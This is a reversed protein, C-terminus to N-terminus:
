YRLVFITIQNFKKYKIIEHGKIKEVPKDQSSNDFATIHFFIEGPNLKRDSGSRLKATEIGRKQTLYNLAKAFRALVLKDGDLYAIKSSNNNESIYEAVPIIEGLVSTESDSAMGARYKSVGQGIAYGNSILLASTILILLTMKIKRDISSDIIKKIWVGLFAFPVFFLVIFYRVGIQDAVPILAIFTIANYFVFVLLCQNLKSFPRHKFIYHFLLYYGGISFAVSIFLELLYILRNQETKGSKNKKLNKDIDLINCDERQELPFLIQANAQIQCAAILKVNKFFNKDTESQSVAGAIFSSSNAGRTQIEYKVQGFNTLFVALIIIILGKLELSNRKKLIAMVFLATVPLSVLLLAHLQIGVGLAVGFTIYWIFKKKANDDLIKVISFFFLLLFFPALNPNSAFRSNFVIFYSLSFLATLVLAIKEKLITKFLLYFLPISLISFFIIPIAFSEPAAGFVFAAAYEMYYYMPGMYYATNGSQPGLLPFAAKGELVNQILTADRAQDPGFRLWDRFEYTRLFIGVISIIILVWFYTKNKKIYFLFNELM